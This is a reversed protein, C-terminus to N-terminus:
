CSLCPKPSTTRRSRKAMFAFELATAYGASPSVFRITSGYEELIRRTITLGLGMGQGLISDVETTSSQLPRFWREGDSVKVAAGTNEVKM